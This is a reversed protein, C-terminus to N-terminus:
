TCLALAESSFLLLPMAVAMGLGFLEMQSQILLLTICECRCLAFVRLMSINSFGGYNSALLFLM